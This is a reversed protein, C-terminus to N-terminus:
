KVMVRVEEGAGVAVEVYSVVYGWKDREKRMKVRKGGVRALDHEGAFCARWVVGRSGTNSVVTTGSGKHRVSLLTGLVPLETVWAEGGTRTGEGDARSRYFSTVTRTGPLVDIGMLGLVVGQVVGFSVEPYERRSTGPSALYLITNRGLDWYGERYYLYSLYSM